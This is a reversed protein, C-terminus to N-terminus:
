HHLTDMLFRVWKALMLAFGGYVSWRTLSKDPDWNYGPSKKRM